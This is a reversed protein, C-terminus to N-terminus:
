TNLLGAAVKVHASSGVKAAQEQASQQNAVNAEQMRQVFEDASIPTSHKIKRTDGFGEYQVFSFAVRFEPRNRAVGLISSDMPEGKPIAVSLEYEGWGLEQHRVSFSLSTEHGAPWNDNKGDRIPVDKLRFPGRISQKVASMDGHSSPLHHVVVGHWEIALRRTEEDIRRERNQVADLIKGARQSTVIEAM